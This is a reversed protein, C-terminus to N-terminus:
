WCCFCDWEISWQTSHWHYSVVVLNWLIM